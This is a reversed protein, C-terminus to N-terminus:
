SSRPGAPVPIVAAAAVGSAAASAARKRARASYVRALIAAAGVFVFGPVLWVLMDVFLGLTTALVVFYGTRAVPDEPALRLMGGTALGLLLPVIM